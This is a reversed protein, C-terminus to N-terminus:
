NLVIERPVRKRDAIRKDRIIKENRKTLILLENKYNANDTGLDITLISTNDQLAQIILIIDADNLFSLKLKNLRYSRTIFQKFIAGSGSMNYCGMIELRIMNDHLSNILYEAARTTLNDDNYICLTTLTNNTNLFSALEPYFNGGGILSGHIVLTTIKPSKLIEGMYAIDFYGSLGVLSIHPNEAIEAVLLEYQHPTTGEASFLLGVHDSTKNEIYLSTLLKATQVHGRETAEYIYRNLDVYDIYIFNRFPYNGKKLEIAQAITESFIESNKNYFYNFARFNGGNNVYWAIMEVQDFNPKNNLIDNLEAAINIDTPRDWGMIKEEPNESDQYYRLSNAAAM